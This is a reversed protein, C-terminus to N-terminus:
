CFEFRGTSSTGQTCGELNPSWTRRLRRGRPTWADQQQYKYGSNWTGFGHLKAEAAVVNESIWKAGFWCFCFVVLWFSLFLRVFLWCVDVVNLLKCNRDGFDCCRGDHGPGVVEAAGVGELMRLVMVVATAIQGDVDSM